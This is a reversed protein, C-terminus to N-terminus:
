VDNASANEMTEILVPITVSKASGNERMPPTAIRSHSSTMGITSLM